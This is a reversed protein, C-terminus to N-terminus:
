SNRSQKRAANRHKKQREILPMCKNKDWYTVQCDLCYHCETDIIEGTPRIARVECERACTQCPRGCEKRRRLWDFVRFRGPYTLAAGLPCIYRCYAKRTVLGAALVVISFLVYPWERAFHLGFVTKFPEVEAYVEATSLSQLSLAVLGLMLLYKIAWLREHIVEPLEWEPLNLKQGLRFLLEQLAGFPCLWGCYVGRGWLLASMAVFSWLLFIIPDLFFNEWTFDHLLANIFTLVNVISLQGLAIIGIFIVTFILYGTRVRLLLRPHRALWDQTLLIVFLTLLAICLVVINVQENRWITKWLPQQEVMNLSAAAADKGILGRAAAVMKVSKSITRNLVMTTITAGSIGDLVVQDPSSRNGIRMDASAPLQRYQDTFKELDRSSLGVVLIPEEHHVIHVGLIKGQRDLGVLANIPKGSYAPIPSVESTYFVYGLTHMGQRVTASPPNGEFRGVDDATPFMRNVLNMLDHQDVAQASGTMLMLLILVITKMTCLGRAIMLLMTWRSAM